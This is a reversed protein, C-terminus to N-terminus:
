ARQRRRRAWLLGLAPLGALALAIPAPEPVVGIVASSGTSDITSVGGNVSPQQILLTSIQSLAFAGSRSFSVTTTPGGLSIPGLGGPSTVTSAGTSAGVGFGASNTNDGFSTVSVFDGATSSTFTGTGSNTLTLPSGPPLTFNDAQLKITLQDGPTAGSIRTVVLNTVDLTATAPTGPSNTMGATLAVNYEGVVGSFTIFTGANSLVGINGGSSDTLQLRITAEASRQLGLTLGVVGAVLCLLAQRRVM